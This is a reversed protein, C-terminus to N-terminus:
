PSEDSEPLCMLVTSALSDTFLGVIQMTDRIVDLESVLAERLYAPAPADPEMEKFADNSM